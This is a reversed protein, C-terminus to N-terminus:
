HANDDKHGTSILTAALCLDVWAKGKEVTNRLLANPHYTFVVPVGLFRHVTGRLKGLPLTALEPRDSLLVLQAIRGMAIIVAPQVLAIERRLYASCQLMEAHQVVAGHPPRCKVVNTLYVERERRLGLAWLMNDLLAGSDGVFARGAQDEEEDPPAGVVMWTARGAAPHLTTNKRGACLGCSSCGQAATVLEAWDAQALAGTLAAAKSTLGVAMERATVAQAMPAATTPFHVSAAQQSAASHLMKPAQVPAQSTTTHRAIAGTTADLNGATESCLTGEFAPDSAWVRVGMELLMARQRRDLDLTL